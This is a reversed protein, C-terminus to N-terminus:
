ASTPRRISPWASGCTTSRVSSPGQVQFERRHRGSAADPHLEPSEAAAYQQQLNRQLQKREPLLYGSDRGYIRPSSIRSTSDAPSTTNASVERTSTTCRRTSGRTKRFTTGRPRLLQRRGPRACTNYASFEVGNDSLSAQFPSIPDEPTMRLTSESVGRIDEAFVETMSQGIGQGYAASTTNFDALKTYGVGLTFSTLAGTGQYLNLAAGSMALSFRTRSYDNSRGQFGSEMNSWTLSPSIGVESGRYIGLGAPNINM